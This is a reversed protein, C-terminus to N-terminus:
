HEIAVVAIRIRHGLGFTDDVLSFRKGHRFCLVTNAFQEISFATREIGEFYKRCYLDLRDLYIKYRYRGKPTHITSNLM